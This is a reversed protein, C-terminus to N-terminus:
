KKKALWAVLQHGLFADVRPAKMWALLPDPFGTLKEEWYAELEEQNLSACLDHSLDDM